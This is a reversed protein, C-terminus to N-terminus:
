NKISIGTPWWPVHKAGSKGSSGITCHLGRFGDADIINLDSKLKDLQESYIKIFFMIFGKTFGGQIIDPDYQFDVIEQDYWLAQEWRVTDHYRHHAVTIHGKHLPTQLKIWYEKTILWNYYKIFDDSLEVAIRKKASDVSLIGQAKLM